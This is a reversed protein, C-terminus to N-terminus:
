AVAVDVTEREATISLKSFAEQIVEPGIQALCGDASLAV